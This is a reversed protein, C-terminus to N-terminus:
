HLFTEVCQEQMREAVTHRYIRAVVNESSCIFKGGVTGEDFDDIM